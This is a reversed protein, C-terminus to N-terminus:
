RVIRNLFWGAYNFVTKELNWNRALQESLLINATTESFLILLSLRLNLLHYIVWSKYTNPKVSKNWHLNRRTIPVSLKVHCNKKKWIPNKQRSVPVISLKEYVEAYRWTTCLCKRPDSSYVEYHVLLSNNASLIHLLVITKKIDLPIESYM